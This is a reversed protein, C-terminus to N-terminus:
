YRQLSISLELQQVQKYGKKDCVVKFKKLLAIFSDPHFQDYNQPNAQYNMRKGM